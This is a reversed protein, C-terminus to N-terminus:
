FRVLDDERRWKSLFHTHFSQGSKYLPSHKREARRRVEAIAGVITSGLYPIHFM